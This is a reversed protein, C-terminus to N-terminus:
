SASLMREYRYLDAPWHLVRVAVTEETTAVAVTHTALQLSRVDFAAGGVSAERQLRVGARDDPVHLHTLEVTLGSGIAKALAERQTWRRLLWARQAGSAQAEFARREHPQLLQEVLTDDTSDIIGDNCEIDVGIATRALGVAAQNGSHSLNFELFRSALRPKGHPRNCHFCPASELVVDAPHANLYRGLIQRLATHSVSFRRQLQPTAFRACRAREVEDLWAAVGNHWDLPVLWVDATLPLLELPM